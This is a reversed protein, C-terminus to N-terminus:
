FVEYFWSKGNTKGHVSCSRVPGTVIAGNRFQIQLSTGEYIDSSLHATKVGEFQRPCEVECVYGNLRELKWVNTTTELFM